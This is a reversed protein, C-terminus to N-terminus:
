NEEIDSIPEESDDGDEAMAEFGLEDDELHEMGETREKAKIRVRAPIKGLTSTDLSKFKGNTTWISDITIRFEVMKHDFLKLIRCQEPTLTQGKECVNHDRLLTVVGKKLATPLGLQRLQPEMSHSFGALPGESLTVSQTATNGSRAFEPESYTKFWEVVEKQTKNTFLIGTQGILRKSIKHLNEKYEDEIGKGLAIAMVKNKGFVLRSHTWAQRVDKLKANRSNQMTFTFIREYTDVHERLDDILKQKHELGKKRTQTLSIKRDRKSKPM